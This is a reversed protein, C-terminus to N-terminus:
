PTVDKLLQAVASDRIALGNVGWASFAPLEEPRGSVQYYWRSVSVQGVCRGHRFGTKATKRRYVRGLVVGDPALVSWASEAQFPLGEARLDRIAKLTPKTM